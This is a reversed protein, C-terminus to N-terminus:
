KSLEAADQEAWEHIKDMFFNEVEDPIIESIKPDELITPKIKDISLLSSRYCNIVETADFNRENEFDLIKISIRGEGQTPIIKGDSDTSFAQTWDYCYFSTLVRKYGLAEITIQFPINGQRDISFEENKSTESDSRTRKSKSVPGVKSLRIIKELDISCKNALDILKKKDAKNLESLSKIHTLIESSDRLEKKLLTRAVSSLKIESM